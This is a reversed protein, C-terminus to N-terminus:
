TLLEFALKQVDNEHVRMLSFAGKLDMKWLILEEWSEVRDKMLLIMEAIDQLTPHNIEGWM